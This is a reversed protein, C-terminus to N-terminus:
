CGWYYHRQHGPPQGTVSINATVATVIM